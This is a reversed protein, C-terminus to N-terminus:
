KVNLGERTITYPAFDSGYRAKSKAGRCILSEMHRVHRGESIQLAAAFCYFLQLIGLM